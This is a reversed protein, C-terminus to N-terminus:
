KKIGFKKIELATQYIFTGANGWVIFLWIPINKFNFIQYSWVGRDIAYMEAFTGLLGIVIFIVLTLKSKWKILGIAAIISLLITTLIINKYLLIVVLFTLIAFIMNFLINKINM